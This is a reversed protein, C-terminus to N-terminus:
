FPVGSKPTGCCLDCEAGLVRLVALGNVLRLVDEGVDCISTVEEEEKLFNQKM